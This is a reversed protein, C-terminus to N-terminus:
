YILVCSGPAGFNRRHKVGAPPLDLGLRFRKSHCLEGEFIAFVDGGPGSLLRLVRCFASIYGPFLSPADHVQPWDICLM